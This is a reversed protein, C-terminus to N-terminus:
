LKKKYIYVSVLGIVDRKRACTIVSGNKLLVLTTKEKPHSDWEQLLTEKAKEKLM